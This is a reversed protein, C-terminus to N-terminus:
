CLRISFRPVLSLGQGLFFLFPITGLIHAHIFTRQESQERKYKPDVRGYPYALQAPFQCRHPGHEPWAAIAGATSVMLHVEEVIKPPPGLIISFSRRVGIACLNSEVDVFTNSSTQGFTRL